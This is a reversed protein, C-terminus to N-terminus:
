LMSSSNRTDLIDRARKNIGSLATLYGIDIGIGGRKEGAGFQGGLM